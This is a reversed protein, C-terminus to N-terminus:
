KGLKQHGVLFGALQLEVLYPGQGGGQPQYQHFVQAAQGLTHGGVLGCAFDGVQTAVADLFATQLREIGQQGLELLAAHGPHKQRLHPLAQLVVGRGTQGAVFFPQLVSQGIQGGGLGLLVGVLGGVVQAHAVGDRRQAGNAIGVPGVDHGAAAGQHAQHKGCRQKAAFARGGAVLGQAAYFAQRPPGAAAFGRHRLRQQVLHVPRHVGAVMFSHGPVPQLTGAPWRQQLRQPEVFVGAHGPARQRVPKRQGGVQACQQQAGARHHRPHQQM